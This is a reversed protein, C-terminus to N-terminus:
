SNEYDYFGRGTKRGLEGRAVKEELFKPPKLASDGSERYQQLMALRIVDLGSLDMLQFPGLPHGLAKTVILDIDRYDAIGQAYLSMAERQLAGLIRNAVFGSIERRILAGTRGIRCCFDLAIRVTEESTDPNIVVEVCNMVLPPFFFHLNLVKDPRRTCAALKSSVITSSNTALIADRPAIEDLKRFLAQKVELDEVVCEIVLDAEQVADELRTTYRMRGFADHTAREEIKGKKIWDKMRAALATRAKELAREDLDEVVTHFGGLACLMAIQHGMSGAGIVAIRNIDESQM